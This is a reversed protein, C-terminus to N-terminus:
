NPAIADGAKATADNAMEEDTTKTHRRSIWVSCPAHRLVYKSTSGLILEGLMSHGTNGVLILNANTAEAQQVIAEGVHTAVPTHSETHHYQEAIKRAMCENTEVIPRIHKPSLTIPPGTFGGGVYAYPQEVVSVVDLHTDEDLDLEMFEAVAERSAVSRDYGVVIRPFCFTESPRVVLVSCDARSAVSDSVSGLLLRGIASHGKAGLVILDSKLKKAEDLIAPVVAGCVHRTAVSQCTRDLTRKADALTKFTRANEQDTWEPVWPQFQYHQPDYSATVVTAEVPNHQALQGVVTTAAMAAESGDTPLLIKM